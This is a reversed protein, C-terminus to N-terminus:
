TEFIFKSLSTSKNQYLAKLRPNLERWRWKRIKRIKLKTIKLYHKLKKIKLSSNRSISSLNDLKL